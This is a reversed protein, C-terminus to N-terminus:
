ICDGNSTWVPHGTVDSKHVPSGELQRQMVRQPRVEEAWPIMNLLVWMMTCKNWWRKANFHEIWFTTVNLRSLLHSLVFVNTDSPWKNCRLKYCQVPCVFSICKCFFTLRYIHRFALIEQIICSHQKPAWQDKLGLLVQPAAAEGNM